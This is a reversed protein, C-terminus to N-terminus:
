NQFCFIISTTNNPKDVTWDFKAVILTLQQVELYTGSPRDM